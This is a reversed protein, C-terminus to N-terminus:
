VEIEEQLTFSYIIKEKVHKGTVQELARAYYDLQAHYKEKLEQASKVKDTKYDLVVLGDEEEFYVDIIGQVLILEGEAEDPYMERADVGLVFPQEKYLKQNESASRMRIGASSGLFRLIDDTRICDAMDQTLKGESRFRAIEEGLLTGDYDEAFDLLELLRHYATGRSAGSLEEEEKLFQPILPVVEEEEYLIGGAEEEMYARKKLESVTFKLKQNQSLSYPYEYSFQEEILEKMQLDYVQGTDWRRLMEATFRSKVYEGASERVLDEASIREINVPIDETKRIM